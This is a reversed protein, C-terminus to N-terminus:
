AQQLALLKKIILQNQWVISEVIMICKSFTILCATMDKILVLLPYPIPM